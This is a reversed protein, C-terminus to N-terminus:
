FESYLFREYGNRIDFNPVGDDIKASGQRFHFFTLIPFDAAFITICSTRGFNPSLPHKQVFLFLFWGEKTEFFRSIYTTNQFDRM